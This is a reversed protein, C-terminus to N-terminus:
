TALTREFFAVLKEHHENEAESRPVHDEDEYFHVEPTRQHRHLREALRRTMDVSWVRDRTGHSLFLPGEYREIEIPTTPLLAESTGRWTWAREAPDWPLWGPDGSDRWTRGDFAGCIVDPASHVAIADPVGEVEDRLMLSTLLLAHEAGRSVGYLGIKKGVCPFARLAALADVTRDLPVQSISGANWANGGQSYPFPFALFGHAALLVANRHSWGSWGGESGHLILIAPFPGDGPPGYTTGFEPLLRRVIKLPM